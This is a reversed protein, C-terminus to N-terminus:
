DFTLYAVRDGGSSRLVTDYPATLPPLGASSAPPDAAAPPAPAATPPPTPTIPPPTPTIPPVTVAVAGTPATSVAASVTGIAPSTPPVASPLARGPLGAVESARVILTGTLVVVLVAGVAIGVTRGTSM